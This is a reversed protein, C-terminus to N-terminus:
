VHFGELIDLPSTVKSLDASTLHLYIATTEIHAHGLLEKIAIISTGSTLLHTAFSHRLSHLTADNPFGLFDRSTSFVVQITRACLPKLTHPNFFLYDTPTYLRYYTRLAKLNQNSLITYREKNGKGNRVRIRMTSSDIDSVKLHLMESVRLGASYCTILMTRHKINTVHDFLQNIQTPTLVIPLTTAKKVRPIDKMDWELNLTVTFFFKIASYVSNVYSRSLRRVTIAHHLFERIQNHSLLEPPIEFFKSVYNVNKLYVSVTKDSYGRLEMDIKM